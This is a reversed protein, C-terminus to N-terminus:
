MFSNSKIRRDKPYHALIGKYQNQSHLLELERAADQVIELTM